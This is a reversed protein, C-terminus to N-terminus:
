FKWSLLAAYDLDNPRATVPASYYRNRVALRLSLNTYQDLLLEWGAQSNLRFDTFDTVDPMYEVMAVLKQRDSVRWEYDLAMMLEPAYYKDKPGGIEHSVGGGLRSTLAAQSNKFFRYGLGTHGTIRFDFEQFEDYEGTTDVFLSWSTAQILREYRAQSYLRNATIVTYTTRRNYDLDLYLLHLETKRKAEFGVHLNMAENNGEAGDLGVLISGEWLKIPPDETEAGKLTSNTSPPKEGFPKTLVPDSILDRPQPKSVWETPAQM